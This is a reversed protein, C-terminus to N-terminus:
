SIHIVVGVYHLDQICQVGKQFYQTISSVKLLTSLHHFYGEERTPELDGNRNIFM